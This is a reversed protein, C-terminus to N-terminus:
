CNVVVKETGWRTSFFFGEGDAIFLYNVCKMKLEYMNIVCKM